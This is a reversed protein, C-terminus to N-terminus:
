SRCQSHLLIKRQHFVAACLWSCCTACCVHLDFVWEHVWVCCARCSYDGRDSFVHIICAWYIHDAAAQREQHVLFFFRFSNNIWLLICIQYRECTSAIKGENAFATCSDKLTSRLTRALFVNKHRCMQALEAAKEQNFQPRSCMEEPIGPINRCKSLLSWIKAIHKSEWESHRQDSAAAYWVPWVLILAKLRVSVLNPSPFPCYAFLCLCYSELSFNACTLKTWKLPSILLLFGWLRVYIIFAWRKRHWKDKTEVCTM